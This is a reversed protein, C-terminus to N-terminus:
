KGPCYSAAQGVGRRLSASRISTSTKPKNLTIAKANKNRERELDNAGSWWASQATINARVTRQLRVAVAAVQDGPKAEAM